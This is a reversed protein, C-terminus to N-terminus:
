SMPGYGEVLTCTIPCVSFECPKAYTTRGFFARTSMVGLNALAPLVSDPCDLASVSLYESPAPANSCRRTTTAFSTSRSTCVGSIQAPSKTLKVYAKEGAKGELTVNSVCHDIAPCNTFSLLCSTAGSPEM